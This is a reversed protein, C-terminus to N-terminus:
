GDTVMILELHLGCFVPILSCSEINAQWSKVGGDGGWVCVCVCVCLLLALPFIGFSSYLPWIHSVWKLKKQIMKFNLVGSQSLTYGSSPAWPNVIPHMKLGTTIICEACCLVLMDYHLSGFFDQRNAEFCSETM